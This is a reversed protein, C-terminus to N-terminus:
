QLVVDMDFHMDFDAITITEHTGKKGKETTHEFLRCTLTPPSRLEWASTTCDAM